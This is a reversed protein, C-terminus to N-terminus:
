FAWSSMPGSLMTQNVMGQALSPLLIIKLPDKCVWDDWSEMVVHSFHVDLNKM